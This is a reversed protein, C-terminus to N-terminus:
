EIQINSTGRNMKIWANSPPSDSRTTTTATATTTTTPSYPTYEYEAESATPYINMQSDNLNTSHLKQENKLKVVLAAVLTALIMSLIVLFTVFGSSSSSSSSSASVTEQSIVSDSSQLNDSWPRNVLSSSPTSTFPINAPKECILHFKLSCPADLWRGYFKPMDNLAVCNESKNRNDPEHSAWNTYDMPSGDRWTINALDPGVRAAGIWVAEKAENKFFAFDVAWTQEAESHITIAKANQGYKQCYYRAEEGTLNDSVFKYCKNNKFDWGIDCEDVEAPTTSRYRPFPLAPFPSFQIRPRNILWPNYQGRLPITTTRVFYSDFYTQGTSNSDDKGNAKQCLVHDYNTSCKFNCWHSPRDRFVTMLVCDEDQRNDPCGDRWNTFNM